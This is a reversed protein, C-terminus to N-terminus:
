SASRSAPPPESEFLVLFCGGAVVVFGAALWFAARFSLRDVAGGVLVPGVVAGVQWVVSRLSLSGAVADYHEGEAVFLAMSTPVRLSDAAGLVGYAAFLWFFAPGIRVRRGVGVLTVPDFLTAASGALPVLATGLAYGLAGAFVFWQRGGVRDTARGVYGQAVGKTLKGGALIGGILISPMGFATHAYIPLFLVVAMKGFSFAFRFAVLAVVARRRLLRLFTEAGTADDPDARTGPDDRVFAVVAATSALAVATLVAYTAEFGYLFLLGGGVLDGLLSAVSRVQNYTGIWRGRAAEPAVEGIVSLGTVWLLLAGVGQLGRLVVVAAVSDAFAFGVLTVVTVALGALLYHRSNGLDIKRGVPLVLVLRVAAYAAGFLGAVVGSVDFLEVYLALAIVITAYSMGSVFRVSALAAFEPDRFLAFPSGDSASTAPAM